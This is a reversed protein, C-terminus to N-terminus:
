IVGGFSREPNMILRVFNYVFQLLDYFFSSVRILIKRRSHIHAFSSLIVEIWSTLNGIVWGVYEEQSTNTALPISYDNSGISILYVAKSLLTYAEAEGLKQRM